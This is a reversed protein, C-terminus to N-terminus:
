NVQIQSSIDILHKELLMVSEKSIDNKTYIVFIKEKNQFIYALEYKIIFVTGPITRKLAIKKGSLNNNITVNENIYVETNKTFEDIFDQMNKSGWSLYLESDDQAIVKFAIHCNLWDSELNIWYLKIEDLKEDFLKFQFYPNIIGEETLELKGCTSNDNAQVTEAKKEETIDTLKPSSVLEETPKLRLSETEKKLMAVSSNLQYNQYSLFGIVCLSIFFIALIMIMLKSKNKDTNGIM